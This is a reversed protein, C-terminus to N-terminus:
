YSGCVFFPPEISGGKAYESLATIGERSRGSFTFSDYAGEAVRFWLFQEDRFPKWAEYVKKFKPNAASTEDYLENAAKYCATLVEVPYPRLQTGGAVLEEPCGSQAADYKAMMNTDAAACAVELATKYSQPLKEWATLNLMVSLMPGGEWWGPYYYVPAVKNFGLKEDDYPGVWEAADITGKELAPYIDGGALQQPVVGLKTLVKGAFGGIRM